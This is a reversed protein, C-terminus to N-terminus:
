WAHAYTRTRTRACGFVLPDGRVCAPCRVQKQLAYVKGKSDDAAALMQSRLEEATAQAKHVDKRLAEVM